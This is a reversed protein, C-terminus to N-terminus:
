RRGVVRSQPTQQGISALWADVAAKPIVFRRGMRIHPIRNNRLNTYVTNRSVGLARALEDPAYTVSPNAIRKQHRSIKQPM